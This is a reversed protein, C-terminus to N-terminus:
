SIHISFFFPDFVTNGGIGFITIFHFMKFLHFVLTVKEVEKGTVNAGALADLEGNNDSDGTMIGNCGEFTGIADGSSEVAIGSIM